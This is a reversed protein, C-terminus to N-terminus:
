EVVGLVKRRLEALLNVKELVGKDGKLILRDELPQMVDLFHRNIVVHAEEFAEAVAEEASQFSGEQEGDQWCPCDRGGTCGEGMCGEEVEPWNDPDYRDSASM